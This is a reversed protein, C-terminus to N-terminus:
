YSEGLRELAYSGLLCQITKLDRLRRELPYDEMYGYGGLCQIADLCVQECATGAFIYARRIRELAQASNEMASSSAVMSGSAEVLIDMNELVRKVDQHEIILRGTQIRQRCYERAFEAAARANGAMASSLGSYVARRMIGTAEKAKEGSVAVSDDPVEFGSLNLRVIPMELLGTGPYADQCFRALDKGPILLIMQEREKPMSILVQETLVPHLPCIFEGFLVVSEGAKEAKLGSTNKSDIIPAPLALGCVWPRADGAKGHFQSLTNGIREDDALSALTILGAWHVAFIVAAGAAGRGIRELVVARGIPDLGAGGLNEPLPACLLGAEAAQEIMGWNFQGPTTRERLKEPNNNEAVWKAFKDGTQGLLAREENDYWEM